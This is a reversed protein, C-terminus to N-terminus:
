CLGTEAVEIGARGLKWWRVRAPIIKSPSLRLLVADGVVLQPANELGYGVDSSDTVVVGHEQNDVVLIAETSISTRASGRKEAFGPIELQNLSNM